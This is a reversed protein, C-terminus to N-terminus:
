VLLTNNKELSQGSRKKIKEIGTMSFVTNNTKVFVPGDWFCWFFLCQCGWEQRPVAVHIKMM